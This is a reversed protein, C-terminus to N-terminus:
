KGTGDKDLERILSIFGSITGLTLFVYRLWGTHFLMDLGYGMLYGILTSLPLLLALGTYKGIGGASSPDM